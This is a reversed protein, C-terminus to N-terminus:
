SVVVVVFFVGPSLKFGQNVFDLTIVFVTEGDRVKKGVLGGDEFHLRLVCEHVHRVECELKSAVPKHVGEAGDCALRQQQAQEHLLGGGLHIPKVEESLVASVSHELEHELADFAQRRFLM